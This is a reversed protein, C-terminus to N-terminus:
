CGEDPQDRGFGPLLTRRDRVSAPAGSDSGTPTRGAAHTACAVDPWRGRLMWPVRTDGVSDTSQRRVLPWVAAITLVVLLGNRVVVLLVGLPTPDLFGGAPDPRALTRSYLFPFIATTVACMALFAVQFPRTSPARPDLLPVLPLLWFLYQPSFVKSLVLTLLLM